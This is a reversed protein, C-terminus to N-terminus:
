LAEHPNDQEFMLLGLEDELQRLEMEWEDMLTIINTSIHKKRKQDQRFRSYEEKIKKFRKEHHEQQKSKELTGDKLKIKKCRGTLAFFFAKLAKFRLDIDENIMAYGLINRIHSLQQTYLSASNWGAKHYDTGENMYNAYWSLFELPICTNPTHGLVYRPLDPSKEV